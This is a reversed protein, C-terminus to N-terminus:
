GIKRPKGLLARLTTVKGVHYACHTSAFAFMEGLNSWAGFPGENAKGLDAHGAADLLAAHSDDLTKMLEGFAPYDARGGTGTAFLKPYAQPVKTQVAERGFAFTFNVFAVHGVQWAIPSLAPSPMRQAEENSVDDLTFKLLRHSLGLQHRILARDDV